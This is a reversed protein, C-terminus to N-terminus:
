RFEFSYINQESAFHGKLFWAPSCKGEFHDQSKCLLGLFLQKSLSRAARLFSFGDKGSYTPACLKSNLQLKVIIIFYIYFSLFTNLVLLVDVSMSSFFCSSPFSKYDQKKKFM